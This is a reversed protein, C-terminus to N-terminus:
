QWVIQAWFWYYLTSYDSLVHFLTFLYSQYDLIMCLKVSEFQVKSYQLITSKKINGILAGTIDKILRWVASEIM